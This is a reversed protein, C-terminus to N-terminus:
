QWHMAMRIHESLGIFISLLLKLVKLYLIKNGLEM